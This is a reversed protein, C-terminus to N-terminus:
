TGCTQTHGGSTAGDVGSAEAGLLDPQGDSDHEIDSEAKRGRHLYWRFFRVLLQGLFVKIM